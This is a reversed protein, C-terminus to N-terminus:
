IYDKINTDADLKATGENYYKAFVQAHRKLPKNFFGEDLYVEVEDMFLDRPRGKTQKEWFIKSVRIGAGSRTKASGFIYTPAYKSDVRNTSITMEIRDPKGKQGRVIVGIKRGTDIDYVNNGEGLKDVKVEILQSPPKKLQDKIPRKLQQFIQRLTGNGL